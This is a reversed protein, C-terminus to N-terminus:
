IGILQKVPKVKLAPDEIRIRGHRNFYKVYRLMRPVNPMGLKRYHSLRRRMRERYVANWRFHHIPVVNGAIKHGCATCGAQNPHHRTPVVKRCAVIAHTTSDALPKALRGELPFQEDLTKNPDIKVLEGNRGIRDVWEGSLVEVDKPLMDFYKRLPLRFQAFEDLDPYLTWDSPGSFNNAIEAVRLGRDKWDMPKETEHFGLQFTAKDSCRNIVVDLIRGFRTYDPEYASFIFHEVGIRIYHKLFYPLLTCPGAVTVFCRIM